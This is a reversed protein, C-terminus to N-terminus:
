ARPQTPFDRRQRDYFSLRPLTALSDITDLLLALRVPKRIIADVHFQEYISRADPGISGALVLIRGQFDAQRLLRVLKLGDMRPMRHDTILLDYHSINSVAKTLADSGDTTPDVEYGANVLAETTAQRLLPEDEAYLLHRITSPNENGDNRNEM